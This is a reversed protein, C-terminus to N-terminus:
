TMGALLTLEALLTIVKKRAKVEGDPETFLIIGTTGVNPIGHECLTKLKIWGADLEPRREKSLYPRYDLCAVSVGALAAHM